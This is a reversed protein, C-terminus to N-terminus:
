TASSDFRTPRTVLDLFEAVDRRRRLCEMPSGVFVCSFLSAAEKLHIAKVLTHPAFWCFHCDTWLLLWSLGCPKASSPLTYRRTSAEVASRPPGSPKVKTAVALAAVVLLSWESSMRRSFISFFHLFVCLCPFNGTRKEQYHGDNKEFLHIRVSSPSSFAESEM